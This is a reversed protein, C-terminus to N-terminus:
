IINQRNRALPRRNGFLEYNINPKHSNTETQKNGIEGLSRSSIGCLKEANDPLHGNSQWTRIGDVEHVLISGAVGPNCIRHM